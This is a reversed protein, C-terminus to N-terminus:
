PLLRRALSGADAPTLRGPAPAVYSVPMAEGIALGLVPGVHETEDAHTLAIRSAGLAAFTRWQERAAPGSLTAPLALHTEYLGIKALERELRLLEADDSTSVGPTDVVVVAHGRVTELRARAQDGDAAVEVAVGWQALLARLAAGRDAPALTLCVVPLDSGIAYASALRAVCSTKGSGGSGVFALARGAGAWSPAVRIRRALADRVLPRLRDPAAFPLLHSVTEAVVSQAIERRLGANVLEEELAAAETPRRRGAVLPAPAPAPAPHQIALGSGAPPAAVPPQVVPMAAAAELQEAFPRAQEILRQVAPSALGNRTAEDGRVLPEDREPEEDYVDIGNRRAEIEVCQRQFFGAVGGTLGTRQRVVVADPGLEAKVRPLIDDLSRGRYTLTSM